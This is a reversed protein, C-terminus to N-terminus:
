GGLARQRCARRDSAVSASDTGRGRRSDRLEPCRAAVSPKSPVTSKASPPLSVRLDRFNPVLSM